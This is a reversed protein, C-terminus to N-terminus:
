YCADLLFGGCCSTGVGVRPSDVVRSLRQLINAPGDFFGDFCAKRVLLAAKTLQGCLVHHDRCWRLHDVCRM